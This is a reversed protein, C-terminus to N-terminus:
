ARPVPRKPSNVGLASMLESVFAWTKRGSCLGGDENAKGGHHTIASRGLLSAVWAPKSDLEVRLLTVPVNDPDVPRYEKDAIGDLERVEHVRVFRRGHGAHLVRIQGEIEERMRRFRGVHQSM